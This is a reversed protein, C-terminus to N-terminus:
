VITFNRGENASVNAINEDTIDSQTRKIGRNITKSDSGGCDKCVSRVRGHECIGGGGCDKCVSRVRGHECIGSGGCDMCHSRQRGHECIGPGGCDKCVSGLNCGRCDQFENRVRGNESAQHECIHLEMM